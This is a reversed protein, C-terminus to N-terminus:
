PQPVIIRHPLLGESARDCQPRPKRFHPTAKDSQESACGSNGPREPGGCGNPDHAPRADQLLVAIDPFAELAEQFTRRKPARAAADAPALSGMEVLTTLVDKLNDEVSTKDLSFFVGLLELTPHIRQRFLAMLLRDRLTNKYRRGAGRRRLRPSASRRTLASQALREEHIAAFRSYLAEFEDVTCGFLRGFEAPFRRANEYRIM